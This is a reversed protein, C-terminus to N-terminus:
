WAELETSVSNRDMWSMSERHQKVSGGAPVTWTESTDRSTVGWTAVAFAVRDFVLKLVGWKCHGHVM